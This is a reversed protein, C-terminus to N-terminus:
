GSALNEDNNLFQVIENEVHFLDFSALRKRLLFLLTVISPPSASECEFKKRESNSLCCSYLARMSLTQSSNRTSTGRSVLDTSEQNMNHSTWDNIKKGLLGCGKMEIRPGLLPLFIRGRRVRWRVDRRMNVNNVRRTAQKSWNSTTFSAKRSSEGSSVGSRSSTSRWVFPNRALTMCLMSGITALDLKHIIVPRNPSKNSRLLIAATALVLTLKVPGWNHNYLNISKEVAQDLM